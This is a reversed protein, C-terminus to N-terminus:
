GACHEAREHELTMVRLYSNEAALGSLLQLVFAHVIVRVGLEATSVNVLYAHGSVLNQLPGVQVVLDLRSIDLVHTLRQKRTLM